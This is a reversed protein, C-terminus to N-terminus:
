SHLLLDANLETPNMRSFSEDEFPKIHIICDTQQKNPHSKIYPSIQPQIDSLKLQIINHFLPYQNLPFSLKPISKLFAGFM